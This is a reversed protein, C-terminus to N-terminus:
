VGLGVGCLLGGEKRHLSDGGGGVEGKGWCIVLEVSLDVM